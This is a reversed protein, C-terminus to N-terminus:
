SFDVALYALTKRMRELAPGDGPSPFSLRLRRLFTKAKLLLYDAGGAFLGVGKGRFPWKGILECLFGDAL